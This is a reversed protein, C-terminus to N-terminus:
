LAHDIREPHEQIWKVLANLVTDVDGLHDTCIGYLEDIRIEYYFHVLRNRYGAFM